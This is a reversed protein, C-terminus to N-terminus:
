RHVVTAIFTHIYEEWLVLLNTSAYSFHTDLLDIYLITLFIFSPFNIRGKAEKGEQGEKRFSSEERELLKYPKKSYTRCIRSFCKFISGREIRYVKGGSSNSCRREEKTGEIGKNTRRFEYKGHIVTAVLSKIFRTM